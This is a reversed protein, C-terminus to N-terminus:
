KVTTKSWQFFEQPWLPVIVKVMCKDVLEYGQWLDAEKGAECRCHVRKSGDSSNRGSSTYLNCYSVLFVIRISVIFNQIYIKSQHFIQIRDKNRGQLHRGGRARRQISSASSRHIRKQIGRFNNWWPPNIAGVSENSLFKTQMIRFKIHTINKWDSSPFEFSFKENWCVKEHKGTDVSCLSLGYSFLASPLWGSSVKTRHEHNGCEVMVYFARSGFLNTHKIDRANVLLVELIGGYFGNPYSRWACGEIMSDWSLADIARIVSLMMVHNPRLGNALMM